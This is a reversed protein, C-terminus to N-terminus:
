KDIFEKYEKITFQTGNNCIIEEQTGLVSFCFCLAYIVEKSSISSSKQIYPFKSYYDAVLLFYKNGQVFIDRGLVKWPRSPSEIPIAPERQQSNSITQCPVCSHVHKTIDKNINPWFMSGKARLTM